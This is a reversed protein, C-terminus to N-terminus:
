RWVSSNPFISCSRTQIARKKHLSPKVTGKPFINCRRQRFTKPCTCEANPVQCPRPSVGCYYNAHAFGVRIVCLATGSGNNTIQAQQRKGFLYQSLYRQNQVASKAIAAGRVARRWQGAWRRPSTSARKLLKGGAKKSSGSLPSTKSFASSERSCRWPNEKVWPKAIVCCLPLIFCARGRGGPEIKIIDVM